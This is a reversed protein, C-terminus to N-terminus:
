IGNFVRLYRYQGGSREILALFATGQIVRYVGDSVTPADFSADSLRKGSLVTDAPPILALPPIFPLSDGVPILLGEFNERTVSEIPHCRDLSIGASKLRTLETLYGGCELTQGIDRAIARIYTGSTCTVTMVASQADPDFSEMVLNIINVTRPKDPVDMDRRALQYNRVGNTKLASYKPPIQTIEGTFRPLVASIDGPTVKRDFRQLIEGDADDTGTFAGFQVVARYIKDTRLLFDFLKTAEGLLLPLVGNAPMDLTGGHGIKKVGIVKTLRRIVDFSSIGSPKHIPLIGSVNGM